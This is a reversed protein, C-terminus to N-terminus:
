SYSFINQREREKIYFICRYLDNDVPKIVVSAALSLVNVEERVSAEFKRTDTSQALVVHGYRHLLSSLLFAHLRQM